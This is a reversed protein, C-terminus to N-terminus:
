PATLVYGTIRWASGPFNSSINLKDGTNIVQRGEWYRAEGGVSEYQQIIFIPAGANDKLTWLSGTQLGPNGAQVVIHRVIWIFGTPVAGSAFLGQQFGTSAHLLASYLNTAV